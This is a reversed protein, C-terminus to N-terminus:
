AGGEWGTAVRLEVVYKTFGYLTPLRGAVHVILPPCPFLRKLHGFELFVCLLRAFLEDTFVLGSAALHAPRRELVQM